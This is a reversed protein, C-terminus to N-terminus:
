RALASAIEALGVPKECCAVGAYRAPIVSVDYGTAFVFPVGRALLADAVPWAMEGRLNVDLVAADIAGQALLALAAAVDPAPGAVEAGAAELEQCLADAIVYDDEAVLVRRGALGAGPQVDPM